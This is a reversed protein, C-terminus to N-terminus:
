GRAGSRVLLNNIDGRGLPNTTTNSNDFGALTVETTEMPRATADNETATSSSFFASKSRKKEEAKLMPGSLYTSQKNQGAEVNQNNYQHM